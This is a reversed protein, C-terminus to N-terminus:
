PQRHKLNVVGYGYVKNSGSDTRRVEFNYRAASLASTLSRAATITGTGTAAVSVSVTGTLVVTDSGAAYLYFALTRGTINAEPSFAFPISWDEGIFLEDIRSETAM